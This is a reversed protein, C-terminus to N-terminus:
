RSRRSAGGPRSRSRTPPRPRARCGMAGMGAPSARGTRSGRPRRGRAPLPRRSPRHPRGPRRRGAGTGRPPPPARRTTCRRPGPGPRPTRRTGTRWVRGSCAPRAASPRVSRATATAAGVPQGATRRGTRRGTKPTNSYGHSDAQQRVEVVPRGDESRDEVRQGLDSAAAVGEADLHAAYATTVNVLRDEDALKVGVRRARGVPTGVAFSALRMCGGVHADDTHCGGQRLRRPEGRM